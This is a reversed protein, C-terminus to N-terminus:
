KSKQSFYFNEHPNCPWWLHWGKKRFNLEIFITEIFTRIETLKDMVDEEVYIITGGGKCNWDLLPIILERAPFTEGIKIESKMVMLMVVWVQFKNWIFNIILHALIVKHLGVVTAHLNNVVNLVQPIAMM